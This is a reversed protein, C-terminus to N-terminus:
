LALATMHRRLRLMQHCLYNEPHQWAKVTAEENTVVFRVEDIGTDSWGLHYGEYAKITMGAGREWSDLYFAGAGISNNAIYDTGM